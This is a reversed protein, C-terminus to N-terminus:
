LLDVNIDLSPTGVVVAVAKSVSAASAASVVNLTSMAVVPYRQELTLRTNFFIITKLARARNM